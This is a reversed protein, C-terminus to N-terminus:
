DDVPVIHVWMNKNDKYRYLLVNVWFGVESIDFRTANAEQSTMELNSTRNDILYVQGCQIIYRM